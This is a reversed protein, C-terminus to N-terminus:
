DFCIFNNCQNFSPFFSYLIKFCFLSVNKAFYSKKSLNRTFANFLYFLIDSQDPRANVAADVKKFQIWKNEAEVSFQSIEYFVQEPREFIDEACVFLM